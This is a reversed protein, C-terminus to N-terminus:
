STPPELAELKKLYALCWDIISRESPSMDDYKPTYVKKGGVFQLSVPGVVMTWLVMHLTQMCSILYKFKADRECRALVRHMHMKELVDNKFRMRNVHSLIPDRDFSHVNPNHAFENRIKRIIHLEETDDPSIWRLALALDIKSSLATIPGNGGFLREELKEPLYLQRKIYRTLEDDILAAILIATSRPAETIAADFTATIGSLDLSVEKAGALAAKAMEERLIDYLDDDTPAPM